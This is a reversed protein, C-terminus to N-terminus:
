LLMRAVQRIEEDSLDPAIKVALPVTRGDAAALRAKERMIAQLLRDLEEGQQLQRLQRTNPSSINVTVYSAVAHVRQLCAIYDDAAREIPTDFNKGINIGLIGRYRARSVNRVLQEVGENNF